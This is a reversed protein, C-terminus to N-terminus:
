NNPNDYTQNFITNGAQTIVLTASTIGSSVPDIGLWNGNPCGAVKGSVTAAPVFTVTIDFVGRGNHDANGLDASGSSTEPVPNRGPAANGGKNVCTYMVTANVTLTAVAPQNGFGSGDGTATVSTTGNFTVTPGSHWTVAAFALSATVALVTLAAPLSLAFRRM